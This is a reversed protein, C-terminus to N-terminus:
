NLYLPRMVSFVSSLCFASKSLFLFYRHFIFTKLAKFVVILICMLFRYSSKVLVHVGGGGGGGGRKVLFKSVFPGHIKARM